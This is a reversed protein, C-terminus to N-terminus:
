LDQNDRTDVCRMGALKIKPGYTISCYCDDAGELLEGQVEDDEDSGPDLYREGEDAM